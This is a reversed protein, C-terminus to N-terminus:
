RGSVPGPPGGFTWDIPTRLKVLAQLEAVAALEARSDRRHAAMDAAAVGAATGSSWEIPHLRTASNVMFGQAMTKGAVLLNGLADNTLARFPIYFPLTEAGGHVYAPFEATTVPHIDAPYAGLAVRDAFATGTRRSAPGSIDAYKIIFKDLGISRRTDRIYPLKSLGHGTGFAQRDLIVQGPAIGAPPHQKFWHHWALARAEAAAMVALDLGGRWDAREAAAAAKPRFLYGFPYDNGGEGDRASYGWNQLSLEGVHPGDGAGRLRRYTWIRAWADPKSRYAGLGLGPIDKPGDPETVPTPEIREVFGFVTAQGLTDLSDLGGDTAEVGQLYPADALALIEGWETADLFITQSPDDNKSKIVIVQKDFRASPKEAYWDPLDASPLVDYGGSALGPRPTRKVFTISRVKGAAVEVRKPVAERIVTLKGALKAELPLLHKALFDRPEFCYNSVWGGGPNGTADLMQRFNPTMNARDRALKAVDLLVAGTKPDLHKHWAEDVAPVGSSTLQGGVWDTPEVLLTKAGSGASAVAAAFAATSGGAIVVDYDQAPAATALLALLTSVNRLTKM